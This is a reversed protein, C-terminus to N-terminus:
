VKREQCEGVVVRQGPRTTSRAHQEAAQCTRGMLFRPECEQRPGCITFFLIFGATMM